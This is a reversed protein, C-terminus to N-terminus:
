LGKEKLDCMQYKLFIFYPAHMSGNLKFKPEFFGIEFPPPQNTLKKGFLNKQFSLKIEYYSLNIVNSSNLRKNKWFMEFLEQYM